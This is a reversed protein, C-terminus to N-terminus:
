SVLFALFLDLIFISETFNAVKSARPNRKYCQEDEYWGENQDYIEQYLVLAARKGVPSPFTPPMPQSKEKLM